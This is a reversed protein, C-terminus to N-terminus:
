SLFNFDGKPSKSFTWVKLLVEIYEQWFEKIIIKESDKINTIVPMTEVDEVKRSRQEQVWDGHCIPPFLVCWWNAGKGEGIIVKLALYKGAPLVIEKYKRTPFDSEVLELQISYSYGKENIKKELKPQLTKCNQELYKMAEEVTGIKQLLNLESLILNRIELKLKQDQYEDSNALVHLRIIKNEEAQVMPQIAFVFILAILFLLKKLV